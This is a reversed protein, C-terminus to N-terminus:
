WHGLTKKIKKADHAAWMPRMSLRAVQYKEPAIKKGPSCRMKREMPVKAPELGAQSVKASAIGKSKRQESSKWGWSQGSGM